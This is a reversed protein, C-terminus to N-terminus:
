KANTSDQSSIWSDLNDGKFLVIADSPVDKFPVNPRVVPPVPKYLETEEPKTPETGSYESHIIIGETAGPDTAELPDVSVKEKCAVALILLLPIYITKIRM